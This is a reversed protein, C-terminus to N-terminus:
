KKQFFQIQDKHAIHLVFITQSTLKFQCSDITLAYGFVKCFSFNLLSTELKFFSFLKHTNTGSITSTSVEHKYKGVGSYM